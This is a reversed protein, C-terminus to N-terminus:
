RYRVIFQNTCYLCQVVEAPPPAGKHVVRMQNRCNPNPCTVVFANTHNQLIQAMTVLGATVMFTVAMSTLFEGWDTHGNQSQEYRKKAFDLLERESKSVPLNSQNRNPV